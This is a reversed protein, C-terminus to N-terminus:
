RIKNLEINNIKILKKVFRDCWQKPPTTLFIKHLSEWFNPGYINVRYNAFSPFLFLNLVM